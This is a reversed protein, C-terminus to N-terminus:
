RNRGYFTTFYVSGSTPTEIRKVYLAAGVPLYDPNSDVTIDLLLFGQAPLAFHDETSGQFSFMLLADTNNVVYIKSIPNEYAGGLITYGAVISGFALERIEEARFRSIGM